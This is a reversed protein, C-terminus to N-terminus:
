AGGRRVYLGGGVVILMRYWLPINAVILSGVNICRAVWLGYNTNPDSNSNNQGITKVFTHHWM